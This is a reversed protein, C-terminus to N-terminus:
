DLLSAALAVEAPANPQRARDKILADIAQERAKQPTIEEAKSLWESQEVTIQSVEDPTMDVLAGNVIKKM